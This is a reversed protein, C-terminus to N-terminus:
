EPPRPFWRGTPKEAVEIDIKPVPGIVIRYAHELERALRTQFFQGLVFSKQPFQFLNMVRESIIERTLVGVSFGSGARRDFAGDCIKRSLESKVFRNRIIGATEPNEGAIM